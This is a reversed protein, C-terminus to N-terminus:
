EKALEAEADRAAARMGLAQAEDRARTLLERGSRKRGLRVDLRGHALLTRVVGPRYGMEQNRALAREFFASARVSRGLADSLVGLFHSVAGVYFGLPNPTNLDPYPELLAFLQECRAKDDFAAACVALNSLEYLYEGDRTLEAPNGVKALLTRAIDREGLEAALRAFAAYLSTTAPAVEATLLSPTAVARVGHRELALSFAFSGYFMDAYSVGARVAEAHLQKYRREAEDFHGDLFRRQAALRERFFTAEPWHQGQSALAMQALAADAEAMRGAQLCTSFRASLADNNTWAPADANAALMQDIVRLAAEIDDPGSLAFLQANLAEKRPGRGPLEQALAVARASLEKSRSLDRSYPPMCSLLSLAGVRTPSAADPLQQLVGELASCALADPIMSMAITPRRLRAASVVLDHMRHQQALELLRASTEIARGTRGALRQALALSLLLEARQRPDPAGAFLQAELAWGYFVIADEHAFVAQAADGAAQCHRMVEFHDAAPLARYFHRAIESLARESPPRQLLLKGLQRHLAVREAVPLDDYLVSQFLAHVFRYTHPADSALQGEAIAPELRELLIEPELEAVSLLLSLDFSEGIVAAVSLLSRTQEPLRRMRERLLDRALTPPRVADPRLRELGPGGHERLLSRVIERVFLPIGGSARRIAEALEDSPRHQTMREALEAVQAGDFADLPLAQAHRMLRRLPRARADDPQAEGDRSTALVFLPLEGLEPALFALVDLTNADGWQLDDLVLLSPRATCLERLLRAVREVKVFRASEAQDPPPSSGAPEDGYGPLLGRAVGALESRERLVTRLAEAIPWLPPAIGEQPCRGYWIGVNMGAAASVLEQACATKGIGAEGTIICLSGRGVMADSLRQMLESMVRQRGVFTSVPSPAVPPPVDNRPASSPAAASVQATFRYGRSQVTEIPQKSGRSQGLARRIHSISWAVVSESVHDDEWVEHLLEAKTVLEGPRAVLYHLVDFVKPQMALPQGSRRVVFADMDLEFDGFRLSQV